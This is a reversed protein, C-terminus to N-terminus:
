RPWNLGRFCPFCMLIRSTSLCGSSTSAEPVCPGGAGTEEQCGGGQEEEEGGGDTCFSSLEHTQDCSCTASAGDMGDRVKKKEEREKLLTQKDM